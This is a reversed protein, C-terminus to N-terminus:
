ELLLIEMYSRDMGQIELIHRISKEISYNGTAIYLLYMNMAFIRICAAELRRDGRSITNINTKKTKM